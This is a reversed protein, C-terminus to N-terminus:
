SFVSNQLKMNGEKQLGSIWLEIKGIGNKQKEIKRDDQFGYNQRELAM